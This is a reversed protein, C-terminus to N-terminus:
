SILGALSVVVFEFLSIILIYFGLALVFIIINKFVNSKKTISILAYLLYLGLLVALVTIVIAGILGISLLFQASNPIQPALSEIMAAVEASSAGSSMAEVLPQMNSLISPAILLLVLFLVFSAVWSGIRPVFLVFALATLVGTLKGKIEAGKLGRLVLYLAIGVFLWLVLDWVIFLIAAGIVSGLDGLGLLIVSLVSNFVWPLLLFFLALPMSPKEYFRLILSKLPNLYIV